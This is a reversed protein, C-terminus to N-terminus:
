SLQLYLQMLFTVSFHVSALMHTHFLLALLPLISKCFPAINKLLPIQTVALVIYNITISVKTLELTALMTPGRPLLNCFAQAKGSHLDLISGIINECECKM